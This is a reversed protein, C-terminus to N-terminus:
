RRQQRQRLAEYLVVAAATAVNLSDITETMPIRISLDLDPLGSPSLGTGEQGFIVMTKKTLDTELHTRAGNLLTAATQFGSERCIRVFSSLDHIPVVPVRLISGMSARVAKANYPDVTSVTVGVGSAGVAEVTRIITGLNGPDQLRDAVVVLGAHHALLSEESHQKIRVVAMVPQPSRTESLVNVIRDSIWVIERSRSEALKLLGKGHHQVLSPAALVMDVGLDGQLAEEVMKVGEILFTQDKKRQKHDNLLRLKKVLPNEKSSIPKHPSSQM